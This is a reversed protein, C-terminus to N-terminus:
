QGYWYLQTPLFNGYTYRPTWFKYGRPGIPTTQFQDVQKGARNFQVFVSTNTLDGMTIEGQQTKLMLPALTQYSFSITHGDKGANLMFGQTESSILDKITVHYRQINQNSM